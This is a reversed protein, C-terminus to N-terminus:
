QGPSPPPPPASGDAGPPPGIPRPGPRPASMIEALLKGQDATLIARIQAWEAISATIIAAEAKQAAAALTTLKQSDFDAALVADRVAKTAEAAKKTLPLMTEDGKAIVTKLQSVQDETLGLPEALRDIMQAQPPMLATVPCLGMPGRGMGPGGPPPPGQSWVAPACLSAALVAAIIVTRKM